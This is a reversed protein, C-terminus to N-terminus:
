RLIRDNEIVSAYDLVSQTPGVLKHTVLRQIANPDEGRLAVHERLDDCV